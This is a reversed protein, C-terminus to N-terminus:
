AFLHLMDLASPGKPKQIPAPVEGDKGGKKEDTSDNIAELIATLAAIEDVTVHKKNISVLAARFPEASPVTNEIFIKTNQNYHVASNPTPWSCDILNLEKCSARIYAQAKFVAGTIYLSDYPKVSIIHLDRIDVFSDLTVTGHADTSNNLVFTVFKKGADDYTRSITYIPFHQDPKNLTEFAFKALARRAAKFAERTGYHQYTLPQVLTTPAAAAM